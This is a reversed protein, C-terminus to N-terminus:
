NNNFTTSVIHDFLKLPICCWACMWIVYSSFMHLTYAVADRSCWWHPFSVTVVDFATIATRVHGFGQLKCWPKNWPGPHLYIYDLNYRHWSSDDHTILSQWYVHYMWHFRHVIYPTSYKKTLSQDIRCWTSLIIWLFFIRQFSEEFVDFVHILKHIRCNLKAVKCNTSWLLTHLTCWQCFNGALLHWHSTLWLNGM